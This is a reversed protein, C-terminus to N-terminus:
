DPSAGHSLTAAPEAGAKKPRRSSPLGIKRAEHCATRAIGEPRSREIETVGDEADVSGVVPLRNPVGNRRSAKAEVVGVHDVEVVANLDACFDEDPLRVALASQSAPPAKLPTQEWGQGPKASRFPSARGPSDEDEFRVVTGPRAMSAIDIANWNTLRICGHSETKGIAEPSPTGHIGYSPATLDIWVLGVPDNPGAAVVLKRKTKVGKWAFRPDYVYDPNWQVRRVKFV